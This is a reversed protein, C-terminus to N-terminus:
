GPHAGGPGPIDARATGGGSRAALDLVAGVAQRVWDAEADARGAAPEPVSRGLEAWVGAASWEAFRRYVTPWSPGFAPPLQRWTCGSTAAFVIAALVARDAHRRRGGGQARRPPAPAIREFREWLLGPVMREVISVGGAYGVLCFM